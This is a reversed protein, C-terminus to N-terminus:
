GPRPLHAAAVRRPRARHGQGGQRRADRLHRGQQAPLDPDARDGRRGHRPPHGRRDEAGAGTYAPFVLHADARRLEPYEFVRVRYSVTSRGEFEVRYALDSQVSEVRGAFTPDELSRTMRAAPPGPRRRRDVLSADAPAARNFRAVVLLPSGRELEVDGPEVQVESADARWSPQSGGYATSRSRSPSHRRDRRRPLRPVGRARGQAVRLLWTPVTEDWDHARRHELAERVVTSQLFGLRGGPAAEVEDVAALLETGLEPHRTEIRRAVWRPDRASRLAALACAIGVARRWSRWCRRCGPRRSGPRAPCLRGYAAIAWGVLALVLWCVALGGWLRVSRFRRAVQELAQRLRGSM